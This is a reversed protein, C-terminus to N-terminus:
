HFTMEAKMGPKVLWGGAPSRQNEIDAWVRFRDRLDIENSVFGVTGEIELVNDYSTRVRVTVPTGANIADGAEMANVDGEVRVRNLQVLTAIPSGPQVWEGLQAVRTEVYGDFTATIKRRRLEFEAIQRENRKAIYQAEAIKKQMEALDIRLAARVAELVKKQMEYFPTAGKRHLVRFSEAEAKALEESNIADKLNVDNDANLMAEKEEAQKLNLALTASTDDIVAIVDGAQVLMGEEIKLEVLKGEVEAPINVNRIYKVACNEATLKGERQSLEGLDANPFSGNTQASTPLAWSSLLGILLLNIKSM